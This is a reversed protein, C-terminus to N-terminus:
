KTNRGSREERLSQMKEIQERTLVTKMQSQQDKMLEQFKARKQEQSLSQDARVAQFKTRFDTRIQQVKAQQAATLGLEKGFEAGRGEGQGKRGTRAGDKFQGKGGRNFDKKSGKGAEKREAKMKAVQAKQEPTLISQMEARHKEHLAKRREKMQTVTLTSEQQKLAQAEKKHEERLTQLRAKQDATLNLQEFGDKQGKHHARHEKKPGQPKEPTTSQAQAAGITLALILAGTLIRKM